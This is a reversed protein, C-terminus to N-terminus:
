HGRLGLCSPVPGRLEDHGVLRARRCGDVERYVCCVFLPGLFLIAARFRHRGCPQRPESGGCVSCWGFALLLSGEVM